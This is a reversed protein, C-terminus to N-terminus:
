GDSAIMWAIGFRDTFMGFYAGWPAQDFPMTVTAGDTLGAWARRLEDVDSGSLSVSIGTPATYPMVSPTDSAMLVLDDDTTLQAHMVLTRESPDPVMDPFDEFTSVVLEGGLVEHYFEMADRANNRFSIYPNLHAM